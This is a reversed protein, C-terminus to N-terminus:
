DSAASGDTGGDTEADTGASAADAGGKLPPITFVQPGILPYGECCGQTTAPGFTAQVTIPPRDDSFTLAVECTGEAFGVIQFWKCPYDTPDIPDPSCYEVTPRCAPGSWHGSQIKLNEGDAAVVTLATVPCNSRCHGDCGAVSLAATILILACSIISQHQV